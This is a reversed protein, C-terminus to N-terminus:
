YGHAVCAAASLFATPLVCAWYRSDSFGWGFAAAIGAVLFSPLAYVLIM